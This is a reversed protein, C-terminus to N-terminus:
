VNKKMGMYLYMLPMVALPEDAQKQCYESTEDGIMECQKWWEIHWWQRYYIWCTISCIHGVFSYFKDLQMIPQKNQFKNGCVFCHTKPCEENKKWWLFLPNQIM